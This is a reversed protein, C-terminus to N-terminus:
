ASCFMVTVSLSYSSNPIKTFNKGQIVALWFWVEAVQIVALTPTVFLQELFYEQLIRILNWPNLYLFKQHHFSPIKNEKAWSLFGWAWLFFHWPSSAHESILSQGAMFTSNVKKIVNFFQVRGCADFVQLHFILVNKGYTLMCISTSKATVNTFEASYYKNQLKWSYSRLSDSKFFVAFCWITTKIKVIIM